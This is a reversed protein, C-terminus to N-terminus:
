AILLFFSVFTLVPKTKLKTCLTRSNKITLIACIFTFLTWSFYFIFFSFLFVNKFSWFRMEEFNMKKGSASSSIQMGSDAHPVFFFLSIIIVCRFIKAGLHQPPRFQGYSIILCANLPDLISSFFFQTCDCFIFHHRFRWM